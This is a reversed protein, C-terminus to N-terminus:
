AAFGGTAALLLIYVVPACVLISDVRDLVGGHGPFISGMDKVGLDRKLLSESLDGATGAITCCVGLIIGWWAPIDLAFHACLVGIIMATIISGAFGEWSKKPSITPAMPHKGFLVGAFYGGTDSAVPLIVFTIVAWAGNEMGALLVAFGGLLGIWSLAFVGAACDRAAWKGGARFRWAIVLMAAFSFTVLLGVDAYFWTAAAIGAASIWLPLVPIYFGRTSFAGAAEWLGVMMFLAVLVVFRDIWVFLSLGVVGLLALATIIAAPLNRGARSETPAPPKPPRPALKGLWADGKVAEM